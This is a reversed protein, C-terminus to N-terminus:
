TALLAGNPVIIHNNNFLQEGQWLNSQINAQERYAIKVSYNDATPLRWETIAQESYYKWQIM